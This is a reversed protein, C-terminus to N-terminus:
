TGQKEYGYPVSSVSTLYSKCSLGFVKFIVKKMIVILHQGLFLIWHVYKLYDTLVGSPCYKLSLFLNCASQAKSFGFM